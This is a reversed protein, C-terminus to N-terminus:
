PGLKNRIERGLVKLALSYGCLTVATVGSMTHHSFGLFVRKGCEDGEHLLLVEKQVLLRVM